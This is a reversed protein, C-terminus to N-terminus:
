NYITCPRDFQRVGPFITEFSLPLIPMYLVSMVLSEVVFKIQLCTCLCAHLCMPHCAKKKFGMRYSIKIHFEDSVDSCGENINSSSFFRVGTNERM